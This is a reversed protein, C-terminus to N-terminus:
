RASILLIYTGGAHLQIEAFFKAENPNHSLLESSSKQSLISCKIYNILILQKINCSFACILPQLRSLSIRHLVAVTLYIMRMFM